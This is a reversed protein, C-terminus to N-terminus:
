DDTIELGRRRRRLFGAGSLGALGTGLLTMTIPEPVVSGGCDKSAVTTTTSGDTAFWGSCSTGNIAQAHWGGVVDSLVFESSTQFDLVLAMDENDYCTRLQQNQVTQGCGILGGNVGNTLSAVDIQAGVPNSNINTAQQWVGSGSTGLVSSGNYMASMLTATGGFSSNGLGAFTIVNSQGHTADFLNWVVLKLHWNNSGDQYTEAHFAACVQLTGTSCSAGSWWDAAMASRPVLASGLIVGAVTIFTRVRM